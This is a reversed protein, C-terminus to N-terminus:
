RVGGTRKGILWAGSRRGARKRALWQGGLRRRTLFTLLSRRGYGFQPQKVSRAPPPRLTSHGSGGLMGLGRGRGSLRIRAPGIAKRRALFSTQELVGGAVLGTTLASRGLLRSSRRFKPAAAPRRAIPAPATRFHITPVSRASATRV